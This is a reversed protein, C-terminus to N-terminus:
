GIKVTVVDALVSRIAQQLALAKGREIATDLEQPTLNEELQEYFGGLVEFSTPLAEPHHRAVGWLMAAQQHQETFLYLAIAALLIELGPLSSEIKQALQM